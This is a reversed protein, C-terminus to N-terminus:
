EGYVNPEQGAQEYAPALFLHTPYGQRPDTANALPQLLTLVKAPEAGGGLELNFEDLANWLFALRITAEPEAGPIRRISEFAGAASRLESRISRIRLDRKVAFAPLLPLDAGISFLKYAIAQETKQAAALALAGDPIRGKLHKLHSSPFQQLGPSQDADFLALSAEAWLRARVSYAPELAIYSCVVDILDRAARVNVISVQGTSTRRDYAANALELAVGAVAAARVSDNRPMERALAGFDEIRELAAEFSRFDRSEYHEVLILAQSTSAKTWSQRTAVPASAVCLVM